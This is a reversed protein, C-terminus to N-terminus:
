ELVSISGGQRRKSLVTATIYRKIIDAESLASGGGSKGEEPIHCAINIGQM